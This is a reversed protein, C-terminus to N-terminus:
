ISTVAFDKVLGNKVSVNVSDKIYYDTKFEEWGITNKHISIIFTNANNQISGIIRKDNKIKANLERVAMSVGDEPTEITSFAIINYGVKELNPTLTYAKIFGESFLYSRTRSVTPQSIGLEKAIERDSKKSNNMLTALVKMINKSVM